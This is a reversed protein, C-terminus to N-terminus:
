ITKSVWNKKKEKKKERKLFPMTKNKGAPTPYM